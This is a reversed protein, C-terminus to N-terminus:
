GGVAEQKALVQAPVAGNFILGLERGKPTTIVDFQPDEAAEGTLRYPLELQLVDSFRFPPSPDDLIQLAMIQDVATMTVLSVRPEIVITYLDMLPRDFIFCQRVARYKETMRRTRKESRMSPRGSELSAVFIHLANLVGQAQGFDLLIGRPVFQRLEPHWDGMRVLSHDTIHLRV